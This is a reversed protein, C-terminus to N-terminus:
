RRLEDPLWPSNSKILSEETNKVQNDISILQAKLEGYQKELIDLTQINTQTPESSSYWFSYLMNGLRTNMSPTQNANRSSKSNDGNLLISAYDITKAIDNIKALLENKAENSVLITNELVKIKSRVSNLYNNAGEINKRMEFARKHFALLEQNNEAPLSKNNLVKAEFSKDDSIKTLNGYHEKYIAVSYKGPMIPFGSSNNVKSKENLPATDPYRMDWVLRQIGKKYPATLKRVANGEADKIIFILTPSQEDDEKKLDAFSPYDSSLGKKENESFSKQRKSKLTEYNDKIYYTFVAGYPHNEGRWFTEGLSNRGFSRDEIYLWSDKVDFLQADKAVLEDNINRLASYDDLIFFGRGFSALALDNERRQIDIEKICITPLGASLKVWNKGANYTYYVGFETGIFLLDKKVHDQKISHVPLNEPLGNAINVWTKGKDNSMLVYPKFDGRKRNDFTAYVINEDFLDAEIDSVYTTEPVSNFTTVKNWTNGDDESIQILGDDTGVYILGKKISSEDLSVINGYLSTSANKAVAEPEWVKDMIKLKNRDIQRSLDESIKKWSNGRDTSKFLKNAAFYITKNDHPSIIVPSNWNWRLEEGEEEQPQIGTIEGSKKDYRVLFGYQPQSYVINPDKPDVVTKFGDGGVTFYFDQNMLGGDNQTRTPGGITNNDQTGGYINYFPFDNDVTVRYFQTVSLNEFFRWTKSGDFTEYLGGDGAIMM